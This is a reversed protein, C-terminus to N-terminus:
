IGTIPYKQTAMNERNEISVAFNRSFQFVRFNGTKRYQSSKDFTFLLSWSSGEFGFLSIVLYM